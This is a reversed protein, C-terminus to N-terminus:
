KLRKGQECVMNEIFIDCIWNVMSYTNTITLADLEAVGLSERPERHSVSDAAVDVRFRARQAQRFADRSAERLTFM